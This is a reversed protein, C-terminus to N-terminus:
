RKQKWLRALWARVDAEHDDHFHDFFEGPILRKEDVWILYYAPAIRAMRIDDPLSEVVALIQRFLENMEDVIEPM